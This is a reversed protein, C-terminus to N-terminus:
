LRKRQGEPHKRKWQLEPYKSKTTQRWAREARTREMGAKRKWLKAPPQKDRYTQRKPKEKNECYDM